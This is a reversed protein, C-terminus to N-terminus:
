GAPLPDGARWGGSRLADLLALVAPRDEHVLLVLLDGPRAWALARRAADLEDAAIEVASAAMGLDRFAAALIRPLEGPARGRLHSPIEKAIVHDLPPGSLAAEALERLAADDRDGAQSVALLRRRATLSWVVPMLARVGHPNHAYDVLVTAGGVDLANLRGPNDGPTNGLVRLGAALAAAPLGLAHGVAAAALANAVNYRAAGGYAVPVEDVRALPVITGAVEFALADGHLGFVPEGAARAASAVPGDPELTFWALPRGAARGRAALVPDDANLVLARAAKAVVLKIDTLDQVSAIGFDGLHDEAVNTVAAVDARAVALGRRLLGGRATELIAMTARPGRLALRAGGPGSWDGRDLVHDGVRVWDTTSVAPVHGAAAAMAAVLRVTTSKGNTGTVLAVPVDHVGAWDIADPDPLADIPWTRSGTGLGVTVLDEGILCAVGRARAAAVLAVLAPSAEVAITALFNATSPPEATSRESDRDAAAPDDADRKRTYPRTQFGGGGPEVDPTSGAATQEAVAQDAVERLAAEALDCAAYLGDVPAALALMVGGAVARHAVPADPWGVDARLRAVAEAWAAALAAPPPDGPADLAVDLCAGPDDLLLSPGTLRRVDVVRM